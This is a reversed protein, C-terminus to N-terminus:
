IIENPSPHFPSFTFRHFVVKLFFTEEFKGDKMKIKMKM